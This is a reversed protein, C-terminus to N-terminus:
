QLFNVPSSHVQVCKLKAAIRDSAPADGAQLIAGGALVLIEALNFTSLSM